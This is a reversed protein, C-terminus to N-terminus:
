DDKTWDFGGDWPPKKAIIPTGDYTVLLEFKKGATVTHPITIFIAGEKRMYKVDGVDSTVSILNMNPYLDIQLTDFDTVATSVIKVTGGVTHNTPDIKVDINYYNVDFCSRYKTMTGLLKIRESFDPYKGPKKPAYDLEHVTKCSQLFM